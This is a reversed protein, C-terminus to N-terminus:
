AEASLGHILQIGGTAFSQGESWAWAYDVFAPVLAEGVLLAHIRFSKTRRMEIVHREFAEPVEFRGDTIWL